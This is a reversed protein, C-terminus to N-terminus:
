RGAVSFRASRDFSTMGLVVAVVTTTAVVMWSTEPGLSGGYAVARLVILFHTLPNYEVLTRWPLPVIDVPYFTPTLYGAVIIAVALASLTDKIRVAISAVFMGLGISAVLLLALVPVALVATAPVGVGTAIQLAFLAMLLVATQVVVSSTGALAVVRPSIRIKVRLTESAVLCQGVQQVVQTALGLLLTGSLVYVVYPVDLEPTQFVQSLVVWLAAVTLLPTLVAWGIGFLSRHYRIVLDRWALMKFVPWASPARGTEVLRPPTRGIPKRRVSGGLELPKARVRVDADSDLALAGRVPMLEPADRVDEPASTLVEAAYARYQAHRDACAVAFYGALDGPVFGEVPTWETLREHPFSTCALYDVVCEVQIDDPQVRILRGPYHRDLLYLEYGCSDLFSMLSTPSSGGYILMTANSEILLTPRDDRSLLERMGELAAPESGEIDMKVLDISRWGFQGILDALRVAPLVVRELTRDDDGALPVYGWPGHAVFEIEGARDGAVANVVRLEEFGNAAAADRLLQANRPSGEVAIVKCGLGSAGLSYTGIHAGVDLFRDGPRLLDFALRIPLEDLESQTLLWQSIPDDSEPQVAFTATVRGGIRINRVLVSADGTAADGKEADGNV